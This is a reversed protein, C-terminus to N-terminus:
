SQLREASGRQAVAYVLSKCPAKPGPLLSMVDTLLTNGSGQAAASLEAARSYRQALSALVTLLRQAGGYRRKALSGSMNLYHDAPTFLISHAGLLPALVRTLLAM